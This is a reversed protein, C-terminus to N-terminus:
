TALSAGFWTVFDSWGGFVVWSTFSPPLILKRIWPFFFIEEVWRYKKKKAIMRISSDDYIEQKVHYKHFNKNYSSFPFITLWLDLRSPFSLELWYDVICLELCWNWFWSGRVHQAYPLWLHNVWKPVVIIAVIHSGEYSFIKQMM